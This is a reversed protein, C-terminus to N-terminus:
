TWRCATALETFTSLGFHARYSAKVALLHLTAELERKRALSRYKWPGVPFLRRIIDASPFKERILGLATRLTRRLGALFGIWRHITSSALTRDDLTEASDGEFFIPRGDQQAAQRYTKRDEELYSHASAFLSAQVYRKYPVAFPPYHTFTDNCLPCKWRTLFSSEKRVWGGEVVLFTRERLAHRRFAGPEKGCRPCHELDCSFQNALVSETYEKIKALIPSLMM